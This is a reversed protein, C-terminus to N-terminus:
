IYRRQVLRWAVTESITRAVRFKMELLSRLAMLAVDFAEGDEDLTRMFAHQRLLEAMNQKKTDHM